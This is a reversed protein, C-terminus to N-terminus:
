NSLSAKWENVYETIEDGGLASWTDLWQTFGEDPNVEGIIIKTSIMNFEDQITSWREQMLENQVGVFGNYFLLGDDYAKQLIAMPTDPADGFMLNWEWGLDEHLLNGYYPVAKGTLISPDEGALVRQLQEYVILNDNAPVGASMPAMGRSNSEEYGFWQPDNAYYFTYYWLSALKLAAEPHEFDKNIVAWSSVNPAIVSRVVEGTATPLTVCYWDSDPDSKHLTGLTHGLWHGAYVVGCKGALISEFATAENKTIFEPDLFGEEYLRNLMALGERTQDQTAGFVLQGDEKVWYEPYANYAGFLGRTSYWIDKNIIMGVTDDEGNGDFDAAMFASMIDVLDDITKPDELELAQMWDKRLWLYSYPDTDSARLPIGYIGGNTTVMDFGMGGDSLMTEMHGDIAYEDLLDTLELIMGAEALQIVDAQNTITFIDPLDGATMDLRLKQMYETSQAWWKTNVNIGLANENIYSYRNEDFTEGYRENFKAVREEDAASYSRVTTVTIPPDYPTVKDGEGISDFYEYFHEVVYNTEFDWKEMYDFDEAMAGIAGALSFCLVLVCSLLRKM